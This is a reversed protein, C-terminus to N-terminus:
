KEEQGESFGEAERVEADTLASTLAWGLAELCVNQLESFPVSGKTARRLDEWIDAGYQGMPLGTRWDRPRVKAPWARKPPWCMRLAAAGYALDEARGGVERQSKPRSCALAFLSPPEVLECTLDGLKITPPPRPTPESTSAEAAQTTSPDEM